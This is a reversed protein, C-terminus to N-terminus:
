EDETLAAFSITISGNKSKLVYDAYLEGEGDDSTDVSYTLKLPMTISGYSSDVDFTYDDPLVDGTFSCVIAGNSTSVEANGDDTTYVDSLTVGGSNSDICVSDLSLNTLSIDGSGGIVNVAYSYSSSLTITVGYKGSGSYRIENYWSLASESINLVGDDTLTVTYNVNDGNEASDVTISDASGGGSITVYGVSADINITIVDDADYAYSNISMDDSVPTTLMYIVFVVYAAALIFIGVLAAIIINRLTRNM